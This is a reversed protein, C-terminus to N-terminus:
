GDEEEVVLEDINIHQQLKIAKKILKDTLFNEQSPIEDYKGRIPNMNELFSANKRAEQINEFGWKGQMLQAYLVMGLDTAHGIGEPVIRISHDFLRYSKYEQIQADLEPAYIQSEIKHIGPTFKLTGDRYAYLWNHQNLKPPNLIHIVTTKKARGYLIVVGIMAIIIGIMVFLFRFMGPVLLYLDIPLFLLFTAFFFGIMMLLILLFFIM